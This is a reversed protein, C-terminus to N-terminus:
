KHQSHAIFVAALGGIMGKEGGAMTEGSVVRCSSHLSILAM